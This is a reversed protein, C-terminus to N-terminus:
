RRVPVHRGSPIDLYLEDFPVDGMEVVAYFAALMAAGVALNTFLLQPASTAILRECGEDAPLKDEPQEIEPHAYTIPKNLAQSGKRVYVQVNGDTYENGGSILTVAPLSECYNSVLRRTAHNDVALLIVDEAVIVREVNDPSVFEPIARFSVREFRLALEEAKATAKNGAREFDQRSRNGGEFEDGDVLTLRSRPGKRYELYRALSPVLATGIGGVGILKINM